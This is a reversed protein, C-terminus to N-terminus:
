VEDNWRILFNEKAENKKYLFFIKEGHAQALKFDNENDDLFVPVRFWKPLNWEVDIRDKEMNKWKEEGYLNKNMNWEESGDYKCTVFMRSLYKKGSSIPEVGHFYPLGSPFVTIDGAKPKFYNIEKTNEKIFSLEGDGYDDNLYVTVTIFLHHKASQSDFQHQDTHYSMALRQNTNSNYMLLMQDTPFLQSFNIDKKMNWNTVYPWDSYDKWDSIYDEVVKWYADEIEVIKEYEKKGIENELISEKNNEYISANAALGNNNWDEWKKIFFREEREQSDKITKLIDEVNEIVNRYVVVKPFLVKKLM